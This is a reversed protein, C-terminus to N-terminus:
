PLTVPQFAVSRVNVDSTIVPLVVAGDLTILYIQFVSGGRNSVFALWRGDPSWSPSRDEARGDDITILFPRQGNADMIWVDSDGTRDSIYVIRQGDPSFVPQTSSGAANTLREPAGGEAPIVYLEKSGPTDLDSAFVIRRGDPSFVPDSDDANNDTLRAPAGGSVPVSYLEDDGDENSSFVIQTGDPSWAPRSIRDGQMQTIPQADAPSSASGVFVQPAQAGSDPASPDASTSAFAIRRGDPSFAVDVGFADLPRLGVGNANITFLSPEPADAAGQAYMMPFLDLPYPTATPPPIASPLGTATPTFTPPLDNDEPARTVVIGVFVTPRPTLTPADPAQATDAQAQAFVTATQRVDADSPGRPILAALLLGVVVLAVAGALAFYLGRNSRGGLLSGAVGALGALADSGEAADRAGAATPVDVGMRRLAERARANNPNLKLARELCARREEATDVVSAMWMWALENNKDESLIQQLLRRANLKDGRQAANIAQRLRDQLTPNEAM